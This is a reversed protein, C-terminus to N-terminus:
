NSMINLDITKWAMVFNKDLFSKPGATIECGVIHGIVFIFYTFVKTSVDGNLPM